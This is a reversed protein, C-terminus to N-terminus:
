LRIIFNLNDYIVEQLWPLLKINETKLFQLFNCGKKSSFISTKWLQAQTPQTVCIKQRAWAVSPVVILLNGLDHNESELEVLVRQLRIQIYQLM